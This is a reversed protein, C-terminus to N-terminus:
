LVVDIIVTSVQAFRETMVHEFQQQEILIQLLGELMESSFRIAISDDRKRAHSANQSQIELWDRISQVRECAMRVLVATQVNGHRVFQVGVQM